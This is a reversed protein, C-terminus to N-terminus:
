AGAMAHALPFGVQLAWASAFENKRADLAEGIRRIYVAREAGTMRPWPGQDFAKRAAAVARDVDAERAEAVKTVFSEDSPSIIDIAAGTQPKVWAGGLFIQEPNSLNVVPQTM